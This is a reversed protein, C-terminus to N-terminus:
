SALSARVHSSNQMHNAGEGNWKHKSVDAWSYILKKNNNDNRSDAADQQLVRQSCNTHLYILWRQMRVWWM